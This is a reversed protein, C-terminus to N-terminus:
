IELGFGGALLDLYIFPSLSKSFPIELFARWVSQSASPIPRPQTLVNRGRSAVLVSSLVGKRQSLLFGEYPQMRSSELRGNTTSTVM